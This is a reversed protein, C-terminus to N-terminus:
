HQVIHVMKVDSYAVEGNIMQAAIRYYIYGPFVNSDKWNYRGTNNSPQMGIPDFFQGDYSRQIEFSLVQGSTSSMWILATGNRGERHAIFLNFLNGHNISIAEKQPIAPYVSKSWGTSLFSIFFLFLLLKKM